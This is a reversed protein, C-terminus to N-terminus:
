CLLVKCDSPNGLEAQSRSFFIIDGGSVTSIGPETDKNLGTFIGTSGPSLDLRQSLKLHLADLVQAEIFQM